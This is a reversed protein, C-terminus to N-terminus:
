DNLLGAEDACQLPYFSFLFRLCENLRDLGRVALGGVVAKGVQHPVVVLYLPFTIVTLGASSSPDRDKLGELEGLEVVHHGDNRTVKTADLKTGSAEDPCVAVDGRLGDM